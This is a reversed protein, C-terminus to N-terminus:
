RTNKVKWYYGSAHVNSNTMTIDPILKYIPLPEGMQRATLFTDTIVKMKIKMNEGECHITSRLPSRM